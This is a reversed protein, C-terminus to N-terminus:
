LYPLALRALGDRLRAPFPRAAWEEATIEKAGRRKAEFLRHLRANLTRDYLEVNVEFNLRMSRPDWNASGILAWTDDILLLKSHDFPPRAFWVRCGHELVQWLQGQSAWQVYALNNESPLLVDVEVGRLAAASLETILDQDPLFYPTLIKVSTRAVALAGLFTWRAKDHDEDPGDAIVRALVTGAPEPEPFWTPGRLREGTSFAWDAAFTAQLHCVVPGELRFHLDRVPHPTGSAVRHAQRINMGGAFAVRGDAVLIKRHTRLNLYPLGWPALSKMFRATEIGRRRLDSAMSPLSYRAGVADILVRVAVGREVARALAQEFDRGAPDRDFIYSSLTVSEQAGDIADLMAPYAEEGDVLPEVANGGVLPLDVIRGVLAAIPALERSPTAPQTAGAPLAVLSRESAPTSGGRRLGRARRRIRNIGFLAYLVPGVVPFLIALGAWGLAARVDRKHLVVHATTVASLVAALAAAVFSSPDIATLLDVAIQAPLDPSITGSGQHGHNTETPRGHSRCGTAGTDSSCRRRSRVFESARVRRM